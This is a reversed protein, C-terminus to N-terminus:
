IKINEYRTCWLSDVNEEVDCCMEALRDHYDGTLPVFSRYHEQGVSLLASRESDVQDSRPVGYRKM